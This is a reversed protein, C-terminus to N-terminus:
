FMKLVTLILGLFILSFPEAIGILGFFMPITLFTAYDMSIKMSYQIKFHNEESYLNSIRPMMVTSIASVVTVLIRVLIDANQYLDVETLNTLNGM